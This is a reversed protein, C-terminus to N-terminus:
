NRLILFVISVTYSTDLEPPLDWVYKIEMCIRDTLNMPCKRPLDHHSYCLLFISLRPPSLVRPCGACM